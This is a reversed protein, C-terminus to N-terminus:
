NPVRGAKTKSAELRELHRGSRGLLAWSMGLPAWSGEVLAGSGELVRKSDLGSDLKASLLELCAGRGCHKRGSLHAATNRLTKCDAACRGTHM